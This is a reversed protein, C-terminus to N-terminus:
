LLSAAHTLAKFPQNPYWTIYCSALSAFALRWPSSEEELHALKTTSVEGNAAVIVQQEHVTVVNAPYKQTLNHLYEILQVLSMSFQLSQPEGSRKVLRQLQSFSVVLTTNERELLLSVSNNMSEIADKTVVIHGGELRSFLQELLLSTQSNRGVDGALLITDTWQGLNIMEDIGNLSLEGSPTSPLFVADSLANGVLSKTKDPLAIKVMGIGNDRALAYAKAPAELAHLNGGIILLRGAQNRQEPKNWELDTFLSESGQKKWYTNDM